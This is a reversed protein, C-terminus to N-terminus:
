LELGINTCTQSNKGIFTVPDKKYVNGSTRFLLRRRKYSASLESDITSGSETYFGSAESPFINQDRTSQMLRYMQSKLYHFETAPNVSVGNLLLQSKGFLVNIIDNSITTKSTPDLVGGNSKKVIQM